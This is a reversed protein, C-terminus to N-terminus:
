RNKGFTIKTVPEIMMTDLMRKIKRVDELSIKKFKPKGFFTKGNPEGVEILESLKPVLIDVQYSKALPKTKFICARGDQVVVSRRQNDDFHTIAFM